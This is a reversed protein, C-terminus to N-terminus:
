TIVLKGQFRNDPSSTVQITTNGSGDVLVDTYILDYIGTNVEAVQIVPNSGKLHTAAPVSITYIGAGLTWDSTANFSSSYNATAAQARANTFYLNTGESINTTTLVVVGTQGNVSSVAGGGSTGVLDLNCSFVNFQYPM